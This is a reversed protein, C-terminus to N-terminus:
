FRTEVGVGLERPDGATALNRLAAFRYTLHFEDFLNRVYGFLTMGRQTWAARADVTTAGGVRRTATERDDSFYASNHRVQASLVLPAVPTWVLSASGTFRPSRQFQKGLIGDGPDLTRTIRTDLLGIAGRLRLAPALRWDAELELGKSWARPANSVQTTAIPAGGSPTIFILQSRQADTMANHFANASLVLRGGALRARAFVEFAWMREATFYEIRRQVPNLNVGGPHSARQALAGIRVDPTIDWALSAKPLWSAFTRDFDLPMVFSIGRLAGSRVQRDRQRRLGATLSLRPALQVTAEGFLGLSTQLDDFEGIGPSTVVTTLDIRQDLTSRAYHLGGTLTLASDPTFALVPEISFDRATIDAEGQGKPAHRRIDAAGYSVTTRLELSDAPNYSFRGTLSDVTIAFIGYSADPDRRAKYPPVVGEIQPMQSRGHSYTLLLRAGPLARPEALLKFRVLESDDRNPNIGVTTTTLRSATRSRRLDGSLRFALQGDVLPGSVVGAAQRTAFDGIIARARGEWAYSPDLTEVFIAGGISNRGQTTTQPSRFVEVRGIDWVSTLGFALEYYTAPRGDITITTRPRNGSLFAPLDRVVGTSDHGRITPGEGGSGLQVNPMSQLLQEIRDPGALTDITEATEVSVSSATDHQSRAVREGTVIIEARGAADPPVPLGAVAAALILADIMAALM